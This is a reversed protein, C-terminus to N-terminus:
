LGARRAPPRQKRAIEQSLLEVANRVPLEVEVRAATDLVLVARHCDNMADQPRGEIWTGAEVAIVRSWDVHVLPGPNM